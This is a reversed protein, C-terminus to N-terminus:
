PLGAAGSRATTRRGLVAFAVLLVSLVGGLAAMWAFGSHAFVFGSTLSGLASASGILFDNVGQTRARENPTLRDSLLSSGGVYCLNWGLGLLLLSAALPWVAVSLPATACSLLLLIGGLTIVPVRGWADTLRGSVVSFAYMGLVHSSLVASISSLGHQHHSMHLATIVMLMVMVVQGSVMTFVALTVQPDRLIEALPRAPAADTPNPGASAATVRLALERPEPHLLVALLAAVLGFLAASMAFPGALPDFGISSSAAGAPGALLPGFVAGVTGGLVVRSIARGREGPLHVEASVFRGLQLASNAVGMLFVGILFAPLHSRTVATGAVLAGLTGSAMGLMLTPRRGLGDMARGWFFAAVAVGLQYTASPVGAWVDTGGLRAGVIPNITSAVLFGASGLGQAAFLALTIRRAARPEPHLSAEPPTV